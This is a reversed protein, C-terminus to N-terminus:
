SHPLCDSPNRGTVAKFVRSFHFPTSFGLREATQSVNLGEYKLLHIAERIRFNTFLRLPSPVGAAKLRYELVRRSMGLCAAIQTGTMNECSHLSFVQELRALLESKTFANRFNEAFKEKPIMALLEWFFTEVLCGLSIRRFFNEDATNRVTQEFLRVPFSEPPLPFIREEPPLEQRLVPFTRAVGNSDEFIFRLAAFRFHGDCFDEHLDDPQILVFNNPPVRLNVGNLCADYSGELPIMFEYEPHLHKRIRYEGGEVIVFNCVRLELPITEGAPSTKFITTKRFFCDTM